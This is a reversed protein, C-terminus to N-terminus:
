SIFRICFLDLHLIYSGFHFFLGCVRFFAYANLSLIVLSYNLCSLINFYFLPFSCKIGDAVCLELLMLKSYLKLM